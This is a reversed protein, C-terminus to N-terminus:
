FFSRFKISETKKTGERGFTFSVKLLSDFHLFDSGGNHTISVDAAIRQLGKLSRGVELYGAHHTTLTCLVTGGFQCAIGYHLVDAFQLVDVHGHEGGGGALYLLVGLFDEGEADVGHVAEVDVRLNYVQATREAFHGLGM